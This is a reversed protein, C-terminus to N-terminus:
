RETVVGRAQALMLALATKADRVRGARAAMAVEGFPKRLVSIGAEPEAVPEDEVLAWFLHVYEDSYGASPYM